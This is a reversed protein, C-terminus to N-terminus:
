GPKVGEHKRIYELVKLYHPNIWNAIQQDISQTYTTCLASLLVYYQREKAEM